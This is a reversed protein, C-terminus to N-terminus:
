RPKRGLPVFRIAQGGGPALNLTLTDAATVERQEIVIDERKGRYDADPGDRYIEARYRRGADLFTLPAALSRPHEDTVAGLAWVDSNRDKRAITVFDGIEGNLVRTEAWDVPVDKIFQFPGPNAEYHVLLDAAMQLPSYIVVYLALQKAWTTQIGGPSRTEMGFIGPTYDMPGALLRTFVLNAEHEPPNGPQGWASFEMGRAGERTIMNPYTRRLGTDKFPEHANVAIQHKAAAEIVRMHHQALPQSEHWAMVSGGGPAAVRAGGADAVYGTKVSHMGLRQYLAFGAEMQQEYHYANGGTEHHGILQVGKSRAHATVREIDFDPYTETFSYDAGNGFWDGDWGKNWGEVLVGGFGHRAAFDVHKIANETTAGHKPGSAWSKLELHMEWWVGVYKMPKFWSVDGLKNPENLNLILSSEVLGAATDSIQLTRWPTHFPAQREVAANTLGPTLQARFKLREARRLNMGAYDILAAEHISVHLGSDGRVTMPTQASGVADIRTRNYLYEERNWEWAPIWWAEGDEALNFETLEAGIRVTKLGDQEPFEYRFGLGDDYLRWVVDFRRGLATKEVFSVRWENYHNRVYRREGWPQEWTEDVTVPRAASLTMNRELMPADTLLFGLWSAEVVPRGLRSVSYTPRGDNDTAMEVTLVGGPSSARVANASSQAMAPAGFALASVTGLALFSRRKLM